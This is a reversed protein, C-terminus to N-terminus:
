ALWTESQAGDAAQLFSRRHCAFERDDDGDNESNKDGRGIEAVRLAATSAEMTAAEMTAAEMTAM